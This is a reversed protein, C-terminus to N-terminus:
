SLPTLPSARAISKLSVIKWRAYELQAPATSPARGARGTQEVVVAAVNADTLVRARVFPRMRVDALEVIPSFIIARRGAQKCNLMVVMEHARPSWARRAVIRTVM